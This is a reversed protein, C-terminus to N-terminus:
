SGTYFYYENTVHSNISVNELFKHDFLTRLEDMVAEQGCRFEIWADKYTPNTYAESRYVGQRNEVSHYINRVFWYEKDRIANPLLQDPQVSNGLSFVAIQSEPYEKFVEDWSNHVYENELARSTQYFPKTRVYWGDSRHGFRTIFLLGDNEHFIAAKAWDKRIAAYSRPDDLPLGMKKAQAIIYSYDAMAKRSGVNTYQYVIRLKM